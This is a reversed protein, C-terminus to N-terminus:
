KHLKDCGKGVVNVGQIKNHALECCEQENEKIIIHHVRQVFMIVM